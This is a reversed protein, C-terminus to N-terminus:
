AKAEIGMYTHTANKSISKFTIKAKVCAQGMPLLTKTVVQPLQIKGYLGKGKM